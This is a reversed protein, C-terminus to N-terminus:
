QSCGAPLVGRRPVRSLEVVLTLLLNAMAEGLGEVLFAVVDLTEEVIDIMESANFRVVFLM